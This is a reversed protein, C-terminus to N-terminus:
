NSFQVGVDKVFMYNSSIGNKSLLQSVRLGPQTAHAMNSLVCGVTCNGLYIGYSSAPHIVDTEEVTIVDGDNKMNTVTVNSLKLSTISGLNLGILGKSLHNMIDGYRYSKQAEWPLPTIYQRGNPVTMTSLIYAVKIIPYLKHEPSNLIANSDKPFLSGQPDLYPKSDVLGVFEFPAVHINSIMVNQLTISNLKPKDSADFSRVSLGRAHINLGYFTGSDSLQGVNTNRFIELTQNVDMELQATVLGRLVEVDTDTYAIKDCLSVLNIAQSLHGNFPIVARNDHIHVNDCIVFDCGNLSIGAVEFDTSELNQLLVGVANNGLIAHHATLGFKFNKVYVNVGFPDGNGFDMPGERNAFPSSNLQIHAFFRQRRWYRESTVFRHGVGDIVVDNSQISIATYFGLQFTQSQKPQLDTFDIVIDEDLFYYGPSSIVFTGKDFDSQTIKRTSKNRLFRKEMAVFAGIAKNIVM